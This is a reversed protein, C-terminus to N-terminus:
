IMKQRGVLYFLVSAKSLNGADACLGPARPRCKLLLLMQDIEASLANVSWRMQSNDWCVRDSVRRQLYACRTFTESDDLNSVDLRRILNFERVAM